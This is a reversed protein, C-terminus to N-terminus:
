EVFFLPLRADEKEVQQTEQQPHAYVKKDFGVIALYSGFKPHSWSLDWISLNHRKEESIKIIM